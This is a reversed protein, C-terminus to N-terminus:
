QTHRRLQNWFPARPRTRTQYTRLYRVYSEDLPRPAGNAHAYSTMAEFPLPESSEGGVTNLDCDKDWGVNYIVFDRVWGEPLPTQPVAFELQIEDGPHMVVLQDDRATLLPQVDGFRTFKGDIPPWKDGAVLQHYDFLEPGNGSEPWERFSVGGRDSLQANMLPLETERVEVAPDSITVFAADWYFEMNTVIRLRHDSSGKAFVDSIDVAITKTKGGPFGMFPRVEQWEGQANVAQLFPPRPRPMEPNQSHQVSLSTCGPYMWGTLYLMVVPPESGINGQPWPGLDLEMFHENTLGQALKRDYTKTFVGDRTQVQDLLDRGQQDRAAVPPYPKSVTHIRHAALDPPGVKENTFIQTGAPHDVAFLRIEDFYEIEWLEATVRLLYKGDKARLRDGDIKLYEWERWPAVVDEAFKLGLPANWLLDTYFAFKEGDWTYLYPCSGILTQVECLFKNAEPLVQNQPVGNTWLVRMVDANKHAGLGFHTLPGRVVQAQFQAGSKVEIQSGLGFHNVRKSYNQENPKVQKGVISVNLWNNANGGENSKWGVSDKTGVLLDEDGDRDIDLVALTRVNSADITEGPPTEFTGTGLGRRLAVKGDAVALLDRAGDNDFDMSYIATVPTEILPIGKRATVVGAVSTETLIIHVGNQGASIVSWSADGLLDEVLLSHAGRAVAFDGDLQRWRFRGHRLNELLGFGEKGSVLIDLDSDRDWDVTTAATPMFEQPPLKSRSTIEDFTWNGRNSWFRISTADITLLDLDGDLDLDGPAVAVIDRVAGLADGAPHEVFERDSGNLLLRNEVLKIGAPGFVLVDPDAEPGNPRLKLRERLQKDADDDLDVALVGVYGSGIGMKIQTAPADAPQPLLPLTMVLQQDVLAVTDLKEDFNFDCAAFVQAGAPVSVPRDSSSIFKVPVKVLSPVPLDARKYFSAGFDKLLYELSNLKVYREDRSSEPLIVHGISRSLNSVAPWQQDAVAKALKDLGDRVDFRVNRKIVDYFPELTERAQAITKSFDPDKLQAQLPLWDKLVFLNDPELEHVKRLATVTEAPPPEGPSLPNLIFLDYWVPASNPALETARRLDLAAREHDGESVFVRARLVLPIHSTSEIQVLEDVAARAKALAKLRKETDQRNITDLPQELCIALNRHGFPDDPLKRVIELLLTEAKEFEHNELYGLSRDRLTLLELSEDRTLKRAEVKGPPLGKDKLFVFMVTLAVAAALILSGPLLWMWRPTPTPTNEM